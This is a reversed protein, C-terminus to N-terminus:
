NMVIYEMEEREKKKRSEYAKLKRLNRDQSKNENYKPMFKILPKKSLEFGDKILEQFEKEKNVPKSTYTKGDSLPDKDSQQRRLL